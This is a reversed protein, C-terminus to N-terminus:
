GQIKYLGKSVKKYRADKNLIQHVAHSANKGGFTPYKVKMAKVLHSFRIDKGMTGAVKFVKDKNSMAARGRKKKPPRGRRVVIKKARKGATPKRGRRSVKFKSMGKLAKLLAQKEKLEKELRTIEKELDKSLKTIKGAFTEAM